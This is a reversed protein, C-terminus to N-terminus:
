KSAGPGTSGELSQSLASRSSVAVGALRKNLSGCGAPSFGAGLYGREKALAFLLLSPPDLFVLDGKEPSKGTALDLGPREGVPGSVVADLM